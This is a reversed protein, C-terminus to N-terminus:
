FLQFILLPIGWARFHDYLGVPLFFVGKGEQCSSLWHLAMSEKNIIAWGLEKEGRCSNEKGQWTTAHIHSVIIASGSNCNEVSVLYVRKHKFFFFFIYCDIQQGIWTLMKIARVPDSFQRRERGFIRPSILLCTTDVVSNTTVWQKRVSGPTQLCMKRRSELDCVNTNLARRM